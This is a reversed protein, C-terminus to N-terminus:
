AVDLLIQLQIFVQLRGRYINQPRLSRIQFHLLNNDSAQVSISCTVHEDGLDTLLPTVLCMPHAEPDRRERTLSALM